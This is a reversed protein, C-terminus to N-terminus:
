GILDTHPFRSQPRTCVVLTLIRGYLSVLSPVQNILHRNYPVFFFLKTRKIYSTQVLQCKAQLRHHASYLEALTQEDEKSKKILSKPVEM